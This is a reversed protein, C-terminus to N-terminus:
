KTIWLYGMFLTSLSGGIIAYWKHREKKEIIDNLIIKESECTRKLDDKAKVIDNYDKVIIDYNKLKEKQEKIVIDKQNIERNLVQNNELCEKKEENIVGLQKGQKITFIIVTDQEYVVVKPYDTKKVQSFAMLNFFLVFVILSNLKMKGTIKL